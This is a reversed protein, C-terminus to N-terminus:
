GGPSRHLAELVLILAIAGILAVGVSALDLDDLSSHDATALRWFTGGIVAGALGALMTALCGAAPTPTIRVALTGVIVGCLVWALLAIPVTIAEIITLPTM